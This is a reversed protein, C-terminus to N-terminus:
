RVDEEESYILETSGITLSVDRVDLKRLVRCAQLSVQSPIAMHIELLGAARSTLKLTVSAMSNM